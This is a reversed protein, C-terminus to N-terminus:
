RLDAEKSTLYIWKENQAGSESLYQQIGKGVLGSGGTVLVVKTEMTQLTHRASELFFNIKTTEKEFIESYIELQKTKRVLGSNTNLTHVYTSDPKLYSMMGGDIFVIVEVPDRCHGISLDFFFLFFCFKSSNITSSNTKIPTMGTLTKPPIIKLVENDAKELIYRGPCNPIEKWKHKHFFFSFSKHDM